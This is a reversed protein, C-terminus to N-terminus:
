EQDYLAGHYRIAEGGAVPASALEYNGDASGAVMRLQSFYKAKPLKAVLAPGEKGFSWAWEAEEIWSDKSSSRQPQAVGHWDGVLQQVKALREKQATQQKTTAGDDAALSVVCVLALSFTVRSMALRTM